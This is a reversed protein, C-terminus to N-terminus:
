CAGACCRAASIGHLLLLPTSTGLGDVYPTSTGLGDVYAVLRNPLPLRLERRNQGGFESLATAALASGSPARPVHVFGVQFDSTPPM